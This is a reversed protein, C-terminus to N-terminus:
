IWYFNTLGFTEIVSCTNCRVKYYSDCKITVAQWVKYYRVCKTIFKQWAEYYSQLLQKRDWNKIVAQSQM